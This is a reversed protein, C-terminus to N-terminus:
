LAHAGKKFIAIFYAGSFGTAFLVFGLGIYAATM